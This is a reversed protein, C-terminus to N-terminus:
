PSLFSISRDYQEVTCLECEILSALLNIQLYCATVPPTQSCFKEFKFFMEVYM